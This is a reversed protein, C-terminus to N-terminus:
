CGSVVKLLECVNHAMANQDWHNDIVTSGEPWLYLAEDALEELQQQLKEQNISISKAELRDFFSQLDEYTSVNYAGELNCYWNKSFCVAPIQHGVIAEFGASGTTVAVCVSSAILDHTSYDLPAFFVNNGSLSKYFEKDRNTIGNLYGYDFQKPNEKIVINYNPPLAAKLAQIYSKQNYMFGACPMTTREHQLSLPVYVYPRLSELGEGAFGRSLDIYFRELVCYNWFQRILSFPRGSKKHLLVGPIKEYSNKIGNTQNFKSLGWFRILGFSQRVMLGLSRSYKKQSMYFPVNNKQNAVQENIRKRKYEHKKQRAVPVRVFPHPDDFSFTGFSIEPLNTDMLLLTPVGLMKAVYYIALDYMIHPAVEFFIFKPDYKKILSLAILFYANVLDRLESHSYAGGPDSRHLLNELVMFREKSYDEHFKQLFIDPNWFSIGLIQKIKEVDGCALDFVNLFRTDPLRKKIASIEDPGCTWIAPYDGTKNCFEVVGNVIHQSSTGIVFFNNNM